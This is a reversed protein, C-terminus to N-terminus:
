IIMESSTWVAASNERASPAGIASMTTWTDTSPNYRAGGGPNLGFGDTAGGWILMETGTWISTDAFWFFRPSPSGVGSIPQWSDQGCAQRALAIVLVSGLSINFLNSSIHTAIKM